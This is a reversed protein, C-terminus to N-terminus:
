EPNQPFVRANVWVALRQTRTNTRHPPSMAQTFAAYNFPAVIALRIRKSIRKRVTSTM